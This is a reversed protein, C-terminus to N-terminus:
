RRRIEEKTTALTAGAAVLGAVRAKSLKGGPSLLGGKMFQGLGFEGGTGILGQTAAIETTGLGGYTVQEM